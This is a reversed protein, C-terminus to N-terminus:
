HIAAFVRHGRLPQDQLISNRVADSLEKAIESGTSDPAEFIENGISWMIISPHNRDRLM